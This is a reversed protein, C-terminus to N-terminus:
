LIELEEDRARKITPIFTSGSSSIPIVPDTPPVPPDSEVIPSLAMSPRTKFEITAPPM